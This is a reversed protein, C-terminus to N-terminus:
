GEGGPWFAELQADDIEGRAHAGTLWNRKAEDSMGDGLFAKIGATTIQFHPERTLSPFCPVDDEKPNVSNRHSQSTKQRSIVKTM